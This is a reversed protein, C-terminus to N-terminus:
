PLLHDRSGPEQKPWLCKQTSPSLLYIGVRLLIPGFGLWSSNWWARLRHPLWLPVWFHASWGPVYTSHNVSLSWPSWHSLGLTHMLGSAQPSLALLLSNGSDVLCFPSPSTIFQLSPVWQHSLGPNFKFIHCLLPQAFAPMVSGSDWM